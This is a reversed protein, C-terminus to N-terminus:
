GEELERCFENRNKKRVVDFWRQLNENHFRLCVRDYFEDTNYSVFRGKTRKFEEGQEVVFVDEGDLEVREHTGTDTDKLVISFSLNEETAAAHAVYVHLRYTFNNDDLSHSIGIGELHAASVYGSAIRNVMLAGSGKGLKPKCIRETLGGDLFDQFRDIMEEPLYNFHCFMCVGLDEELFNTFTNVNRTLRHYSAAINAAGRWNDLVHKQTELAAQAKNMRKKNEKKIIQQKKREERAAAKAPGKYTDYSVEVREVEGDSEIFVAVLQGDETERGFIRSGQDEEVSKVIYEEIYEDAQDISAQYADRRDLLGAGKRFEKSLDKIAQLGMSEFDPHRIGDERLKGNSPNIMKEIAAKTAEDTDADDYQELLDEKFKALKTNQRDRRRVNRDYAQLSQYAADAEQEKVVAESIADAYHRLGEMYQEYSRLFGAYKPDDLHRQMDDDYQKASDVGQKIAYGMSEPDFILNDNEDMFYQGLGETNFYYNQNDVTRFVIGNDTKGDDSIPVIKGRIGAYSEPDSGLPDYKSGKAAYPSVGRADVYVSFGDNGDPLMTMTHQRGDEDQITTTCGTYPSCQSAGVQNQDEDFPDYQRFMDPGARGTPDNYYNWYKTTSDINQRVTSCADLGSSFTFARSVQNGIQNITNVAEIFGSVGASARCLAGVVGTADVADEALCPISLGAVSFLSVPDSAVEVLQNMVDKLLSAFPIGNLVGGMVFTCKAFGRADQCSKITETGEIVGKSLCAIYNCEIAQYREVHYTIAPMCGMLAANVWSDYPNMTAQFNPQGAAKAVTDLVDAVGTNGLAKSYLSGDCSLFNCVQQVIELGEVTGQITASATDMALGAPRTVTVMKLPASAASLAGGISKPLSFITCTSKLVNFINQLTRISEMKAESAALVDEIERQVQEGMTNSDHLEITVTFNEQERQLPVYEGRLTQIDLQCVYQLETLNENDYHSGTNLMGRLLVGRRSFSVVEVRMDSASGLLFGDDDEVPKCPSQVAKVDLLTAGPTKPSLTLPLFFDKPTYHLYGKNAAMTRSDTISRWDDPAEGIVGVVGFAVADEFIDTNNVVDAVIIPLSVDRVPEQLNVTFSATCEWLATDTADQQCAAAVEEGGLSSLDITASVSPSTEERVVFTVTVIDGISVFPLASPAEPNETPMDRAVTIVPTGVLTPELADCTLDATLLGTLANGADDRSPGTDFPDIAARVQDGDQCDTRVFAWCSLGDCSFAPEHDNGVAFAIHMKHFSAKDDQMDARVKTDHTGIYCVGGACADTGLFTVEPSTGDVIFTYDKRYPLTTGNDLTVTFNIPVSSQDTNIVFVHTKCTLGSSGTLCQDDTQIEERMTSPDATPNAMAYDVLITSINDEDAFTFLIMASSPVDPNLYVINEFGGSPSAWVFDASSLSPDGAAFSLLLLFICCCIILPRLAAAKRM